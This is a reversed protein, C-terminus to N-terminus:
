AAADDFPDSLNSNTVEQEETWCYACLRDGHRVLMVADGDPEALLPSGRSSWGTPSASTSWPPRPLDIATPPRTEGVAEEPEFDSPTAGIDIGGPPRRASGSPCRRAQHTVEVLM